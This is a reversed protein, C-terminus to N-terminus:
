VRNKPKANQYLVELRRRCKRAMGKRFGVLCNPLLVGALFCVATGAWGRSSWYRCRSRVARSTRPHESTGAWGRSSWYRCSFRNVTPFNPIRLTGAWGRSSWYRCSVRAALRRDTQAHELGVGAPGIDAVAVPSKTSGSPKKNWGLGPQVLIQLRE